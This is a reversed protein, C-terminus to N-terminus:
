LSILVLLKGLDSATATYSFPRAGPCSTHLLLCAIHLLSDFDAGTMVGLVRVHSGQTPSPSFFTNHILSARAMIYCCMRILTRFDTCCQFM